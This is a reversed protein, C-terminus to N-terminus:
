RTRRTAPRTAPRTTPTAAAAFNDLDKLGKDFWQADPMNHGVGPVEIYSLRVFRDKGFAEYNAKTQPQNPDHEGAVLVFPLRKAQTFIADIPRSASAQFYKNEGAPLLRYFNCGMMPMAGTFV